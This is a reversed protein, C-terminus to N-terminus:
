NKGASPAEKGELIAPRTYSRSGFARLWAGQPDFVMGRHNAHDLVWLSGHEDVAIGRPKYLESRSM